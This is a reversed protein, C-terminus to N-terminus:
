HTVLLLGVNHFGKNLTETTLPVLFAKLMCVACQGLLCPFKGRGPHRVPLVQKFDLLCCLRSITEFASCTIFDLIFVTVMDM